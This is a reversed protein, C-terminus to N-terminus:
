KEQKVLLLFSATSLVHMRVYLLIEEILVKIIWYFTRIIRLNYNVLWM